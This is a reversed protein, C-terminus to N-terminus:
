SHHVNAGRLRLIRGLFLETTCYYQSFMLHLVESFCSGGCSRVQKHPETKPISTNHILETDKTYTHRRSSTLLIIDCASPRELKFLLIFLLLTEATSIMIDNGYRSM